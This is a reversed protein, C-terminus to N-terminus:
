SKLLIETMQGQLGLEVQVSSALMANDMLSYYVMKLALKVVMVLSASM